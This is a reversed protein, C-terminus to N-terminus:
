QETELLQIDRGGEIEPEEELARQLVLKLSRRSRLKQRGSGVFFYIVPNASSNVCSLLICARKVYPTMKEKSIAELRLLGDCIGLPQGCLLFVLVVFLIIVYLRPPQAHLSVCQVRVLLTLSSGCLVFLLFALWVMIIVDLPRCVKSSDGRTHLGCCLGETVTLLFNLAWLLACVAASTRRPRCCRYWVPYLTSLCRETSIASLFSMGTIYPFFKGLDMFKFLSEDHPITCVRLLVSNLVMCLLLLADAAALNLIYVSFATSPLRFRLLWLVITNEGLGVLAIAGILVDLIWLGTGQPTELCQATSHVHEPAVDPLTTNISLLERIDREEM